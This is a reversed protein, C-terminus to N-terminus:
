GPRWVWNEGDMWFGDIDYLDIIELLQPILLKNLYGSNMCITFEAKKGSANVQAWEPHKAIAARDMLGSYHVFLPIHLTKSVRKWVKLADRVLGPAPAGVKTSYGAYGPHGKCDYQIFDPKVKSIERLIEKFSAGAGVNRDKAGLHLDYHLGIYATKIWERLSKNVV